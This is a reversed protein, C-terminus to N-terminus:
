LSIVSIFQFSGEMEVYNQMLKDEPQIVSSSCIVPVMMNNVELNEVNDKLFVPEDPPPHSSLDDLYEFNESELEKVEDFYIVSEDIFEDSIEMMSKGIRKVTLSLDM